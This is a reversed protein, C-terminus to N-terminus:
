AYIKEKEVNTSNNKETSNNKSPEYFHEGVKYGATSGAISGAVFLVGELIGIINKLTKNNIQNKWTKFTSSNFFEKIAYETMFMSSMGCIEKKLAVEKNKAKVVRYGAAGILLPNVNKSAWNVGKGCATLVKNGDSIKKMASLASSAGKGLKNNLEATAKAANTFQGVDAFIRGTDNKNIIKDANRVGFIASKVMVDYM